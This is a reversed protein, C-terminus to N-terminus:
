KQVFGFDFSKNNCTIRIIKGSKDEHLKSKSPVFGEIIGSDEYFHNKDKAYKYNGKLVEFTKVDAKDINLIQQGWLFPRYFYVNKKDKAYWGGLPEFTLPDIDQPIEGNFYEISVLTDVGAVERGAVTREFLQGLQDKYFQNKIHTLKSSDIDFDGTKPSDVLKSSDNLELQTIKSGDIAGKKKSKDM